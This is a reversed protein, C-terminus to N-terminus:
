PQYEEVEAVKYADYISSTTATVGVLHPNFKKIQDKVDKIKYGLSASDIIRVTHNGKELFSALYTLGLPISIIGLKNKM